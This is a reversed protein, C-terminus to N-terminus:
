NMITSAYKPNSIHNPLEWVSVQGNSYYTRGTSEDQFASWSAGLEVNMVEMIPQGEGEKSDSQRKRRIRIYCVTVFIMALTFFTGSAILIIINQKDSSDEIDEEPYDTKSAPVVAIGDVPQVSVDNNENTICITDEGSADHGANNSKGVACRVCAHNQVRENVACLARVCSTDQGGPDNGAVNIKGTPCQMCVKDKVYQNM